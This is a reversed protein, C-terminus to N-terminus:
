DNQSQLTMWIAMVMRYPLFLFVFVLGGWYLIQSWWQDSPLKSYGEAWSTLFAGWVLFSLPVLFVRTPFLTWSRLRPVMSAVALVFASVFMVIALSFVVIDPLSPSPMNFPLKYTADPHQLTQASMLAGIFAVVATGALWDGWLDIGNQKTKM